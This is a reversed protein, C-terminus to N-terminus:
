IPIPIGPKLWYFWGELCFLCVFLWQFTRWAIHRWFLGIEWIMLYEFWSMMVMSISTFIETLRHVFRGSLLLFDYINSEFQRRPRQGWTLNGFLDLWNRIRFFELQKYIIVMWCSVEILGWPRATQIWVRFLVLLLLFLPFFRLLLMDRLTM